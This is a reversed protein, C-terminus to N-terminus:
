GNEKREIEKYAQNEQSWARWAQSEVGLSQGTIMELARAAYWRVSEDNGDLAEILAAIARPDGIKGLAKASTGSVEWNGSRLLDILPEVAREDGIEGLARAAVERVRKRDDLAEILPEVARGDGLEGLSWAASQRVNHDKEYSLAEILGDVDGQKQLEKVNPQQFWGLIGM